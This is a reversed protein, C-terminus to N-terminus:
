KLLIKIINRASFTAEFVFYSYGTFFIWALFEEKQSGERVMSRISGIIGICTAIFHIVSVALLVGKLDYGM